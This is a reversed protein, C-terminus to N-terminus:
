SVHSAWPTQAYNIVFEGAFVEMEGEAYVLKAM